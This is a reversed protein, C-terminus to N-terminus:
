VRCKPPEAEIGQELQDLWGDMEEETIHLGTTVFHEHAVRAEERLAVRREERNVWTEIAEVIGAGPKMKKASCVKALRQRLDAQLRISSPITVQGM